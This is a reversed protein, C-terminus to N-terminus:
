CGDSREVLPAAVIAHLIMRAGPRPARPPPECARPVQLDPCILRLEATTVATLM